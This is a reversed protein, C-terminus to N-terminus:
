HEDAGLDYRAAVGPRTVGDVDTASWGFLDPNILLADGRDVAPNAELTALPSLLHYDGANLNVFMSAASIQHNGSDTAIRNLYVTGSEANILGADNLQAETAPDAGDSSYNDYPPSGPEVFLNGLLWSPDADAAEEVIAHAEASGITLLINGGLSPRGARLRVAAAVQAGPSGSLQASITNFGLRVMGTTAVDVGTSLVSAFRWGCFLLSRALEAADLVAIGRTESQTPIPGTRGGQIRCRFAQVDSVGHALLATGSGSLRGDVLCDEFVVNSGDVDAAVNGGFKADFEVFSFLSTGSSANRITLPVAAGSPQIRTRYTEAEEFFTTPNLGGFITREAGDIVIPTDYIGASLFIAGGGQTRTLAESLTRIAQAPRAGTRSDDGHVSDVFLGALYQVDVSVQATVTGYANSATITFQTSQYPRVSAAGNTPNSVVGVDPAISAVTAGDIRWRLSTWDGHTLTPDTVLFSEVVPAVGPGPGPGAPNDPNSCGAM